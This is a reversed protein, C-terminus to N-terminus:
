RRVTVTVGAFSEDTSYGRVGVRTSVKRQVYALSTQVGHTEYTVGAAHDGVEVRHDQMALSSAQGPRWTVAQDDSSIFAYVSSGRSGGAEEHPVLNHGIRLESGRQNHGTEDANLTDRHAIAVDLPVGARDGSASFQMEVQHSDPGTTPAPSTSAFRGGQSDRVTLTLGPDNFSVNTPPGQAPDPAPSAAQTQAADQMAQHSQSAEQARIAPAVAIAAAIVSCLVVGAGLGKLM